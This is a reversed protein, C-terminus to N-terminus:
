DYDFGHPTLDKRKTHEELEHRKIWNCNACLLQFRGDGSVFSDRIDKYYAFARNAFIKRHDKGDSNVHDIQLARHDDFGCSSCKGGMLNIIEERIGARKERLRARARSRIEERKVPDSLIKDLRARAKQMRDPERDRARLEGLHKARYRSNRGRSLEKQRDDM